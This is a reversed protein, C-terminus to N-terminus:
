FFLSMVFPGDGSSKSFFIHGFVDATLEISNLSKIDICM